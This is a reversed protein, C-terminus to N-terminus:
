RVPNLYTVSAVVRGDPLTAQVRWAIPTNPPLGALAGKPVLYESETLATARSLLKLDTTGVEVDYITGKPGASWRLQFADRPLAVGDEIASRITMGEIARPVAERNPEHRVGVWVFGAILISAAMLLFPMTRRPRRRAAATRAPDALGVALRWTEACAACRGVHEIVARREEAESELGVARWIREADPCDASAAATASRERWSEKLRLDDVSM